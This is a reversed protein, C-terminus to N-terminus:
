WGTSQNLTFFERHSEWSFGVSTSDIHIFLLTTATNIGLKSPTIKLTSPAAVVNAYCLGSRDSSWESFLCKLVQKKNQPGVNCLMFESQKCILMMIHNNRCGKSGKIAILDCCSRNIKPDYQQVLHNALSVDVFFRCGDYCLSVVWCPGCMTNIINQTTWEVNANESLTAISISSIRETFTLCVAIFQWCATLMIDALWTWDRTHWAVTKASAPM